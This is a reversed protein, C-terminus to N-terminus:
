ASLVPGGVERWEPRRENSRSPAVQQLPLPRLRGRRPETQAPRTGRGFKTSRALTSASFPAAKPAVPAGLQFVPPYESPM